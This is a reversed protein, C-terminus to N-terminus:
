DKNISISYRNGRSLSLDKFVSIGISQSLLTNIIGVGNDGETDLVVVGSLKSFNSIINFQVHVLDSSLCILTIDVTQNWDSNLDVANLRSFKIIHITSACHKRSELGVFSSNCFQSPSSISSSKDQSVKSVTTNSIKVRPSRSVCNCGLLFGTSGTVEGHTMFQTVVKTTM